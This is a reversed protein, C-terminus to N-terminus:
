IFIFIKIKWSDHFMGFLVYSVTSLIFFAFLSAYSVLTWDLGDADVDDVVEAM